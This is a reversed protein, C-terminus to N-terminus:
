IKFGSFCWVEINECQFSEREALSPSDFTDCPQTFGRMEDLQLCLAIGKKGGGVFVADQRTYMFSNERGSWAHVSMQPRLSFVFSRGNGFVERSAKWSASCFAGFVNDRTDKVVLISPGKGDLCSFFSLMNWGHRRTDYVLEMENCTLYMPLHTWLFQVHRETLISSCQEAPTDSGHSAWLKFRGQKNMQDAFAKLEDIHNREFESAVTTVTMTNSRHLASAEPQGLRTESANKLVQQQELPASDHHVTVKKYEASNPFMAHATSQSSIEHRDPRLLMNLYKRYVVPRRFGLTVPPDLEVIYDILDDSAIKAIVRDGNVSIVVDGVQILPALSKPDYVEVSGYLRTSPALVLRIPKVAFTHEFEGMPTLAIREEEAKVSFKRMAAAIGAADANLENIPAPRLPDTENMLENVFGRLNDSRAAKANVELDHRLTREWQKSSARATFKKDGSLQGDYEFSAPYMATSLARSDFSGYVTPKRLTMVIPFASHRLYALFADRPLRAKRRSFNLAIVVDGREMQERGDEEDEGRGSSRRTAQISSVEWTGYLQSSPVLGVGLPRRRFWVNFEGDFGSAVYPPEEGGLEVDTAGESRPVHTPAPALASAPVSAPAEAGSLEMLGQLLGRMVSM